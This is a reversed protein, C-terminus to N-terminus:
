IKNNFTIGTKISANCQATPLCKIFGSRPLTTTRSKPPANLFLRQRKRFSYLRMVTPYTIDSGEKKSIFSKIRDILVLNKKEM